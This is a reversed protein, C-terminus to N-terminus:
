HGIEQFAGGEQREIICPAGAAVDHAAGLGHGPRVISGHPAEGGRGRSLWSKSNAEDRRDGLPPKAGAGVLFGVRRTPKM